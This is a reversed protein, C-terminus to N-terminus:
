ECSSISAIMSSSAEADQLVAALEAKDVARKSLKHGFLIRNADAHQIFLAHGFMNWEVLAAITGTVAVLGIATMGALPDCTILSTLMVSVILLAMTLVLAVNLSQLLFPCLAIFHMKSPVGFLCQTLYTYIRISVFITLGSVCVVLLNIIQTAIAMFRCNDAGFYEVAKDSFDVVPDHNMPVGFSIILAAVVGNNLCLSQINEVMQQGDRLYKRVEIISINGNDNKDLAVVALKAGIGEPGGCLQQEWIFPSCVHLQAFRRCAPPRTKAFRELKNRAERAMKKLEPLISRVDEADLDDMALAQQEEAPAETVTKQATAAMAWPLYWPLTRRFLELIM